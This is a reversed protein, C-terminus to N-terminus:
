LRLQLAAILDFVQSACLWNGKHEDSFHKFVDFVCVSLQGTEDHLDSSEAKVALPIM